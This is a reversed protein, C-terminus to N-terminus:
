IKEWEDESVQNTDGIEYDSSVDPQSSVSNNSYAITEDDPKDLNTSKKANAQEKDFEELWEDFEPDYYRNEYAELQKPNDCLISFEYFELDFIDMGSIRPDHIPVHLEKCIRWLRRALPIKAVKLMPIRSM